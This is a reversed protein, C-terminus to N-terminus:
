GIPLQRRYTSTANDRKVLLEDVLLRRLEVHDYRLKRLIDNVEAESLATDDPLLQAILAAVRSRQQPNEPLVLLRGNRFWRALDPEGALLVNVPHAASLADAAAAVADLRPKVWAGRLEVVGAEDLRALEKILERVPEGTEAALTEITVSGDARDTALASIRAALQLRRPSSLCSLLDAAVSVNDVDSVTEFM